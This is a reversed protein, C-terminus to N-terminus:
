YIHHGICFCCFIATIKDSMMWKSRSEHKELM